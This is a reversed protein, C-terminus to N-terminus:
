AGSLRIQHVFIETLFEKRKEDDELIDILNFDMRVYPDENIQQKVAETFCSALYITQCKANERLAKAFSKKAEGYRTQAGAKDMSGKIEIAVRLTDREDRIAIDPEDGFIICWGNRLRIIHQTRKKGKIKVKYSAEETILGNRRAHESVLKKVHDAAGKGILNVWTGQIEAGIEAPIVERLMALDFQPMDEVIASLMSNLLRIREDARATGKLGSLMQNLGKNSLASLNRYYDIGEPILKLIVPHCFILHPNIGATTVKKFAAETIAFQRLNWALDSAKQRSILHIVKKSSKKQIGEVFLKARALYAKRLADRLIEDTGRAM